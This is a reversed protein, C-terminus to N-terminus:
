AVSELCCTEGVGLPTIKSNEFTQFFAECIHSGIFGAGGTIFIKKGSLLWHDDHPVLSSAVQGLDCGAQPETAAFISLPEGRALDPLWRVKQQQSGFEEIASVAGISCHVSLMGAVTPEVSAM